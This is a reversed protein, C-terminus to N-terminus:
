GTVSFLDGERVWYEVVEVPLRLRDAVVQATLGQFKVLGLARRQAPSVGLSERAAIWALRKSFRIVALGYRPALDVPDIAPSPLETEDRHGSLRARIVQADAEDLLELSELILALQLKPDRGTELRTLTEDNVGANAPNQLGYERSHVLLRFARTLWSYLRETWPQSDDARERDRTPWITPAGVSSPPQTDAGSYTAAEDTSPSRWRRPAWRFRSSMRQLFQLFSHALASPSLASKKWMLELEEPRTGELRPQKGSRINRRESM